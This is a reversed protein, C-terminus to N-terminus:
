RRRAMSALPRAGAASRSGEAEAREARMTRGGDGEPGSAERKAWTTPSIRVRATFARALASASQHGVGSAVVKAPKGKRLLPQALSIRWRSPYKGPAQGVWSRSWPACRARPMGPERALADVTWARARHAHM